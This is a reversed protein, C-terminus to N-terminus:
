RRSKRYETPSLSTFAKFQRIFHTTNAYGLREAISNISDSGFALATKAYDIKARILDDTPSNGYISKYVTFFRSKSLNVENAMREVTWEGKLDALMRERLQGFAAATDVSINESENDFCARSLKIFLEEAKGQLLREKLPRESFYEKEMEKTIETVFFYSQPYFVTDLELGCEAILPAFDGSLHMWDHVFRVDSKYYQPTGIDYIICAHPQTRIFGDGLNIDIPDFFHMFTYNEHGVPRVTNFGGNEPWAHRIQTIHIM